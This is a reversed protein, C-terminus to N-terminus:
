FNQYEAHSHSPESYAPPEATKNIVMVDREMENLRTLVGEVKRLCDKVNDTIAATDRGLENIGDKNCDAEDKVEKIKDDMVLTVDTISTSIILMKQYLFYLSTLILIFFLISLTTLNFPNWRGSGIQVVIETENLGYENRASIIYNGSDTDFPNDLFYSLVTVGSMQSSKVDLFLVEKTDSLTKRLSMVPAPVGVATATIEFKVDLPTTIHSVLGVFEPRKGSVNLIVLRSVSAHDSTATLAYGGQLEKSANKIILCNDQIFISRSSPYLSLSPHPFGKPYTMEIPFELDSGHNLNIQHVNEDVKSFSDLNSFDPQLNHGMVEVECLMLELMKLLYISVRSGVLSPCNLVVPNQGEINVKDCLVDDVYVNAGGMYDQCCDDRYYIIVQDVAYEATLNVAWWAPGDKKTHSCSSGSWKTNRNGDVARSSVGNSYESSQTTPQGLALNRLGAEATYTLLLLLIASLSM